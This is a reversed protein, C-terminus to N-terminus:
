LCHCCQWRDYADHEAADVDFPVDVRGLACSVLSHRPNKGKSLSSHEGATAMTLLTRPEFHGSTGGSGGDSTTQWNCMCVRSVFARWLICVQRRYIRQTVITILPNVVPGACTWNGMCPLMVKILLSHIEALLESSCFHRARGIQLAYILVDRSVELLYSERICWCAGACLYPFIYVPCLCHVFESRDTGTCLHHLVLIAYSVTTTHTIDM